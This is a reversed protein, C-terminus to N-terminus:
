HARAPHSALHHALRTTEPLRYHTVCAMVLEIATELGVRHGSSVFIPRTGARSRLAAGIIEGQDTLPTWAGRTQPPPQFEGILRQKAVGITPRDTLVGLHCALGFRRPHAYGQGDCLIVDPDIRAQALAHLAAPLERFSLLGPVYPFSTPRRVIIHEVPMLDALRLIVVAARTIRGGDEFGIDVGAVHRIRGLRNGHEVEQVLEAQILRAYAPTVHWPHLNDLHDTKM